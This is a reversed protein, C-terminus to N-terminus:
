SLILMLLASVKKWAYPVYFLWYISGGILSCLIVTVVTNLNLYEELFRCNELLFEFNLLVLEDGKTSANRLHSPNDLFYNLCKNLISM